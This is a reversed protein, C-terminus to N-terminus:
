GGKKLIYEWLGREHGGLFFEAIFISDKEVM